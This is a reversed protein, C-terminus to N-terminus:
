EYSTQEALAFFQRKPGAVQLPELKKSKATGRGSHEDTTLCQCIIKSRPLVGRRGNKWPRKWLKTSRVSSSVPETCNPRTWSATPNRGGLRLGLRMGGM